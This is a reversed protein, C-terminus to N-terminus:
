SEGEGSPAPLLIEVPTDSKATKDGIGLPYPSNTGVLFMRGDATFYGCLRHDGTSCADAIGEAVKLPQAAYTPAPSDDDSGLDVIIIGIDPADPNQPPTTGSDEPPLETQAGEVEGLWAPIKGRIYLENQETVIYLTNGSSHVTRVPEELICAPAQTMEGKTMLDSSDFSWTYLSGDQMIAAGDDNWANVSRVGELLMEPEQGHMLGYFDQTRLVGDEGVTYYRTSGLAATVVRDAIRTPEPFKPLLSTNETVGGWIYLGGDETVAAGYNGAACVTVVHDMIKEPTLVDTNTTFSDAETPIQGNGLQGGTNNGWTYLEGRDTVAATMNQGLTVQAAHELVPVPATVTKRAGNGLQGYSSNGWTYLTGEPTLACIAGNSSMLMRYPTSRQAPPQQSLARLLATYDALTVAGDADLDANQPCFRQSEPMLETLCRVLMVADAVTVAGDGDCDGALTVSEAAPQFTLCSASMLAALLVASLRKM